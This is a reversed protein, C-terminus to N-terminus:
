TKFDRQGKEVDWAIDIYLYWIQQLISTAKWTRTVFSIQVISNSQEKGCNDKEWTSTNKTLCIKPTAMHPIGIKKMM